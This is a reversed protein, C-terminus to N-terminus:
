NRRKVNNTTPTMSDWVEVYVGQVLLDVPLNSSGFPLDVFCRTRELLCLVSLFSELSLPM